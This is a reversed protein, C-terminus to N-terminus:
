DSVEAYVPRDERRLKISLKASDISGLEPRAMLWLEFMWRAQSIDVAAMVVSYTAAYRCTYLKVEILM